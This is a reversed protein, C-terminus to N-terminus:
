RTTATPSEPPVPGFDRKYRLNFYLPIKNRRLVRWLYPTYAHLDAASGTPTLPAGTRAPIAEGAWFGITTGARPSGGAWRRRGRGRALAAQPLLLALAALAAVVIGPRMM